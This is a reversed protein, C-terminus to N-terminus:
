EKLRSAEIDIDHLIRRMVENSVAGRYHMQLLAKRETSLVEKQLKVFARNHLEDESSTDQNALRAAHKLRDEYEERIREIFKETVGDSKEFERLKKLAIEAVQKRANAEEIIEYQQNGLGLWKIIIPLSLGQLVLTVFIVCFTLFIILDRHPFPVNPAVYLPIALAAALSVVGRMGCWGILANNRWNFAISKRKQTIFFRSIVWRSFLAELYVWLIRVLIVVMSVAIGSLLLVSIPYDTLGALIKPLQLGILIFVLGNLVFIIVRWFAAAELRITPSLVKPLYWGMYLGSTVAALVGSLELRDAPLYALYPMVISAAICLTPDSIRELVKGSIWGVILGFLIGGLTVSIFYIAGDTISFSGTFLAVLAMRYIVLATSDNVLSEGEIITALRRKVGLRQTIATAAIADPPSVIAGLLFAAAWPIDNVLYHVAVGVVFTTIIVLGCALLSISYLNDKFERISTFYAAVYLIPPLVILFILDPDLAVEPLGPIVGLGLGGIVLGIPYPINIRKAIIVVALIVMFLGIAVDIESM